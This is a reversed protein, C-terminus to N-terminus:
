VRGDLTGRFLEVFAELTGLLNAQVNGYLYGFEGRRSFQRAHLM